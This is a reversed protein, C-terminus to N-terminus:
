MAAACAAVFALQTLVNTGLLSARRLGGHRRVLLSGGGVAAVIAAAPPVFRLPLHLYLLSIFSGALPVAMWAAASVPSIGRVFGRTAPDSGPGPRHFKGTVLMSWAGWAPALILVRYMAKPWLWAWAPPLQRPWDPEKWGLAHYATVFGLVLFAVAPWRTWARWRRLPCLGEGLALFARRYPLLATAAACAAAPVLWNMLAPFTLRYTLDWLAALTAGWLLGLLMVPGAIGNFQEAARGSLRGPSAALYLVAAVLGGM